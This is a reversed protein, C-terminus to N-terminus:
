THHSEICRLQRGVEYTLAADLADDHQVLRGTVVLGM